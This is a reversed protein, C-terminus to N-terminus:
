RGPTIYYCSWHSQMGISWAKASAFIQSKADWISNSRYPNWSGGWTGPAYQFLGLWRGGGGSARPNGRSECWMVSWMKDVSQTYPYMRRAEEMWLRYQDLTNTGGGTKEVVPIPTPAPETRPAPPVPTAPAEAQVLFQSMVWGAYGKGSVSYWVIGTEDKVPGSQISVTAGPSLLTLVQSTANPAARMRLPDGNTNAVRATGSLKPAAPPSDSGKLFLAAIWGTGGPAQVKYWAGGRKDNRPGALVSVGQGEYAVAIQPYDTGADERIRIPDGDTNAVTAKGGVAIAAAANATAYGGGVSAAMLIMILVLALGSRLRCGGYMARM